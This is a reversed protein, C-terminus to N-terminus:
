VPVTMAPLENLSFVPLPRVILEAWPIVIPPAPASPLAIM